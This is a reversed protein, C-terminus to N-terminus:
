QILTHTQSILVWGKKVSQWVSVVRVGSGPPIRGAAGDDFHVIYSVVVDTGAPQASFEGLSFDKVQSQKWYEVWATHDLSQGAPNVGMFLPALHHDVEQWEKNQISQWMLRECQEAGTSNTWTAHKPTGGCGALLLLLFIWPLRNKSM